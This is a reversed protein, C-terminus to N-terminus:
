LGLELTFTWPGGYNRDDDRGVLCLKGEESVLGCVRDVECDSVDRLLKTTLRREARLDENSIQRGLRELVDFIHVCASQGESVKEM